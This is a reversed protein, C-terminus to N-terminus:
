ARRRRVARVDRPLVPQCVAGFIEIPYLSIAVIRAAPDIRSIPVPNRLYSLNDSAAGHREVGRATNGKQLQAHAWRPYKGASALEKASDDVRGLRNRGKGRDAPYFPCVAAWPGWSFRFAFEERGIPSSRYIICHSSHWGLVLDHRQEDFAHAVPRGLRQNEKRLRTNVCLPM